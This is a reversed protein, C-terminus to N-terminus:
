VLSFHFVSQDRDSALSSLILVLHKKKELSFMMSRVKGYAPSYADVPLKRGARSYTGLYLLCWQITKTWQFSGQVQFAPYLNNFYMLLGHAARISKLM